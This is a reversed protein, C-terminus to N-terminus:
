KKIETVVKDEKNAEFGSLLSVEDAIMQVEIPTFLKGVIEYPDAKCGFADHLKRDKLNTSNNLEVANYVVLSKIKYPVNDAQQTIEVMKNPDLSNITIEGDGFLNKFSEIELIKTKEGTKEEIAGKNKLLIEIDIM